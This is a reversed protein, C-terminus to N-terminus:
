EWGKESNRQRAWCPEDSSVVLYPCYCGCGHEGNRCRKAKSDFVICGLCTKYRRKAVDKQIPRFIKTSAFITMKKLVKVKEILTMERGELRMANFWEGIRSNRLNFFVKPFMSSM